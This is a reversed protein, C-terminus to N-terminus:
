VCLKRSVHGGEVERPLIVQPLSRSSTGLVVVASCLAACRVGGTGEVCKHEPGITFGMMMRRRRRDSMRMVAATMM